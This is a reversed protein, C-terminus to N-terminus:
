LGRRFSPSKSLNAYFTVIMSVGIVKIPFDRHNGDASKLALDGSSEQKNNDNEESSRSESSRQSQSGNGGGSDVGGGGGEESSADLM